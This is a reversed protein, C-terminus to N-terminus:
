PIAPVSVINAAVLSQEGSWRYAALHGKKAVSHDVCAVKESWPATGPDAWYHGVIVPIDSTYLHANDIPTDPVEGTLGSANGPILVAERLTRADALWWQLRAKRRERGEKDKYSAGGMHAEPGKVLVELSEYVPTGKRSADLVFETTLTRNPGLLPRVVDMDAESWCAHVLRLTTDGLQVEDWMPITCFWSIWHRHTPSDLGVADLFAQHQHRNSHDRRRAFEGPRDPWETAFAVANFEHNGLVIRASGAEVMARVLELVAIQGPGRDILDGIFVVTRTPHRWVGDVPEYGLARLLRELPDLHGHIDGIVDVGHDPVASSM